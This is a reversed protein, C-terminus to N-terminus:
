WIPMTPWIDAKTLRGMNGMADTSTLWPTAEPITDIDTPHTAQNRPKRGERLTTTGGTRM